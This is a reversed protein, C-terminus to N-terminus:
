SAEGKEQEKLEKLDRVVLRRKLPSIYDLLLVGNLHDIEHQLVIALLGEGTVEFAEGSASQAKVKVRGKRTMHVSLNPLSLCGEDYEIIGDSEVIEPNVLTMLQKGKEEGSGPDVVILRKALGIQPAALGVGNSAYMTEAMDAALKALEADFSEVRTSTERLVPDPYTVVPLLAM